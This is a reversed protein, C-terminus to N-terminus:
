RVVLDGRMQMHYDSCWVACYFPFSGTVNAVFSVHEIEGAKIEGVIVDFAPLYFGHSVLDVNRIRLDVRQGKRVEITRPTWNGKEPTRALLEITGPAEQAEKYAFVAWITGISSLIVLIVALIEQKRM